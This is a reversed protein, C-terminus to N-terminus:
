PYMSPNQGYRLQAVYGFVAVMAGALAGLAFALLSGFLWGKSLGEADTAFAILAIAAGGNLLLLMKMGEIAIKIGQEWHWNQTTM